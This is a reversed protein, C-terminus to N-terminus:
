GLLRPPETDVGTKAAHEDADIARADNGQLTYLSGYFNWLDARETGFVAQMEDLQLEVGRFDDVALRDLAVTLGGRRPRANQPEHHELEGDRDHHLRQLARGCQDFAQEAVQERVAHGHPQDLVGGREVELVELIGREVVVGLARAPLRDSGCRPMLLGDAEGPAPDFEHNTV